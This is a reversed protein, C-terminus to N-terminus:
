IGKEICYSLKEMTVVSTKYVEIAYTYKNGKGLGIDFIHRYKVMNFVCNICPHQSLCTKNKISKYLPDIKIKSTLEDTEYKDMGCTSFCESCGNM